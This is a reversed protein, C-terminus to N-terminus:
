ASLSIFKEAQEINESLYAAFAPHNAILHAASFNEALWEDTIPSNDSLFEGAKEVANKNFYDEITSSVKELSKMFDIALDSNENLYSEFEPFAYILRTVGLHKSLWDVSLPSDEALLGHTYNVIKETTSHSIIESAGDEIPMLDDEIATLDNEKYPLAREELQIAPDFVPQREPPPEVPLLEGEPVTVIPAQHPYVELLDSAKFSELPEAPGSVEKSDEDIASTEFAATNTNQDVSGCCCPSFSFLNWPTIAPLFTLESTRDQGGLDVTSKNEILFDKWVERQPESLEAVKGQQFAGEIHYLNQSIGTVM